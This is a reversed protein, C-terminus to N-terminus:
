NVWIYILHKQVGLAACASAAEIRFSHSTWFIQLPRSVNITGLCLQLWGSVTRSTPTFCIGRIARYNRSTSGNCRCIRDYRLLLDILSDSYAENRMNSLTHDVCSRGNTLAIAINITDTWIRINSLLLSAGAKGREFYVYSVLVASAARM